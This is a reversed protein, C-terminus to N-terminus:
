RHKTLDPEFENPFGEQSDFSIPPTWRPKRIRVAAAAVENADLLWTLDTCIEASTPREFPDHSLMRDVLAALERPADPCRTQAPVHTTRGSTLDAGREYPMVGTLLQYANVGLAYVDARDDVGHGHIVEPATYHWSVPSPVYPLPAADHTRADSWDVICLPYNRSRGTVVIRDARLNGHVIGRQHAHQLIEALDRVIALAERRQLASPEFMSALMPGEVLERAFWPRKDPLLASEYCRVVGPHQLSELFYAERLVRVAIQPTTTTMVKVVARRPLVLHIGFYSVSTPTASLQRMIRYEGIREPQAVASMSMTPSM